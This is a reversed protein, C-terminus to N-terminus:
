GPTTPQSTIIGNGDLDDYTVSRSWWGFLPYGEINRQTTTIIPPVGGLDVLENSNTSGNVTLDFGFNPTQVIQANVLGEWGWNRVHGLNEFRSTAGTGM